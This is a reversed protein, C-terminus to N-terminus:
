AGGSRNGSKVVHIIVALNVLIFGSLRGFSSLEILLLYKTTLPIVIISSLGLLLIARTPTRTKPHIYGFTKRPLVGDRGKAYLLRSASSQVAVSLGIYSVIM